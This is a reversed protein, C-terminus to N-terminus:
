LPPLDPDMLRSSKKHYRELRREQTIEKSPEQQPCGESRRVRDTTLCRQQYRLDRLVLAANPPVHVGVMPRGHKM